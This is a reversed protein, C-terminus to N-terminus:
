AILQWASEIRDEFTGNSKLKKVWYRVSRGSRLYSYDSKRLKINYAGPIDRITDYEDKWQWGMMTTGNWQPNCELGRNKLAHFSGAVLRFDAAVTTYDTTVPVGDYAPDYMNKGAADWWVKEWYTTNLDPRRATHDGIVGQHSVKCKYLEQPLSDGDEMLWVFEGQTFQRMRFIDWQETSLGAGSGVRNSINNLTLTNATFSEVTAYFSKASEGGRYVVKVDHGAALSVVSASQQMDFSTTGGDTLLAPDKENTTNNDKTYAWYKGVKYVESWRTIRHVDIGDFGSNIFQPTPVNTRTVNFLGKLPANSRAENLFTKTDDPATGGIISVNAVADPIEVYYSSNTGVEEYNHQPDGIDNDRFIVGPGYDFSEHVRYAVGKKAGGVYNNIIRVPEDGWPIPPTNVTGDLGFVHIGTTGHGFILNDRFLTDGQIHHLQCGTDQNPQFAAKFDHGCIFIINNHVKSGSAMEQLQIAEAALFAFINNRIIYTISNWEQGSIRSTQGMYLGEGGVSKNFFNREVLLKTLHNESLITRLKAFSGSTLECGRVELTKMTGRTNDIKLAMGGQSILVNRVTVGFTGSRGSGWGDRLGSNSNTEFDVILNDFNYLQLDRGGLGGAQRYVEGPGGFFAVRNPNAEDSPVTIKTSDQIGLDITNYAGANGEIWVTAGNRATPFESKDYLNNNSLNRESYHYIVDNLEMAKQGELLIGPNYADIDAQIVLRGM